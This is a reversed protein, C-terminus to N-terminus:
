AFLLLMSSIDIVFFLFIERINATIVTSKSHTAHEVIANEYLLISQAIFCAPALAGGLTAKKSAMGKLMTMAILKNTHM